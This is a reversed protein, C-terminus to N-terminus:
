NPDSSRKVSIEQNKPAIAPGPRLLSAFEIGPDEPGRFEVYVVAAFTGLYSAALLYMWWPARQGLM